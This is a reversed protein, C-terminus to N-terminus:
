AIQSCALLSIARQICCPAGTRSGCRFVVRLRITSTDCPRPSTRADCAKMPHGTCSLRALVCCTQDQDLSWCWARWCFTCVSEMKLMIIIAYFVDSVCFSACVPACSARMKKACSRAVTVAAASGCLPAAGRVALAAAFASRMPRLRPRAAAATGEAAGEDEEGDVNHKYSKMFDPNQM